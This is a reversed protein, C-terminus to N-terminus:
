DITDSDKRLSLRTFFRNGIYRNLLNFCGSTKPYISNLFILLSKIQPSRMEDLYHNLLQASTTGVRQHMELDRMEGRLSISLTYPRDEEKDIEGDMIEAAMIFNAMMNETNQGEQTECSNGNLVATLAKALAGYSQMRLNVIEDLSCETTALAALSDEAQTYSRYAAAVRRKMYTKSSPNLQPNSDILSVATAFRERSRFSPYVDSRYWFAQKAPIFGENVRITDLIDDQDVVTKYFVSAPYLVGESHLTAMNRTSVQSYAWLSLLMAPGTKLHDQISLPAQRYAVFYNFGEKTFSFAAKPLNSVNEPLNM